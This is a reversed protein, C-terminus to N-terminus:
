QEFAKDVAKRDEETIEIRETAGGGLLQHNKTLIDAIYAIDRGASKKIKEETLHSLALRRKEDLQQIFDSIGAKVTESELIVYPNKAMAESYGAELMLQGLTKTKGIVGMNDLLLRIFKLQKPTPNTEKVESM